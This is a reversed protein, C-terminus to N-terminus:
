RARLIRAIEEALEAEGFFPAAEVAEVAEVLCNIDGTSKYNKWCSQMFAKLEVDRNNIVKEM